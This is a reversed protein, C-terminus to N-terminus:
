VPPPPLPPRCALHALQANPLRAVGQDVAWRRRELESEHRSIAEAYLSRMVRSVRRMAFEECARARARSSMAGLLSRNENIRSLFSSMAEVAEHPTTAPAVFGTDPTVQSAPGGIDLCVVPRGAALAELCVNGFGEHLAPHLLVHSRALKQMVDSYTTLRGFFRVQARVGSDAAIRELRGRYPGDNVIWLESGPNANAFRSFARIALDFGKWHVLRGICIARLPGPPPPPLRGLDNLEEETLATQPLMEVRSVGLSRLAECSERTVGIGVTAARATALLSESRRAWDRMRDRSFEFLRARAPLESVFARPPTEAAGVPGWVFPIDLARLGSPSWYRGFTLHQCVDFGVRNHLSRVFPALRAQWVHYYLSHPIERVSLANPLRFPLRLFIPHFGPMPHEALYARIGDAHQTEEIVAWVEHEPVLDNIV